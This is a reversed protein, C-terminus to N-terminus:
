ELGPGVPRTGAISVRDMVRRQPHYDSAAYHQCSRNDWFAVTDERWKLRMQFEPRQVHRYLLTLIEDSEEPRVGVIRQTFNTNVFIARRGTEPILRVVPHLAPPFSARLEEVVEPKMYHGFFDVWDHEAVLPDIRERIDRPLSEYAVCTDAWLTDGGVAPVERARLVTGFSPAERWTVDNHWNNEAGAHDADKALNVMTDESDGRHRGHAVFPHRELEGWLAAFGRHDARDIAQDRFVLVKFDWLARRLEGLVEDDIDGALRVGTIEAGITPSIPAVDFMTYSKAVASRDGTDGLLPGSAFLPDTRTPRMTGSGVNM